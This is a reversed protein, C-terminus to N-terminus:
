FMLLLGALILGATLLLLARSRSIGRQRLLSAIADRRADLEFQQVESM